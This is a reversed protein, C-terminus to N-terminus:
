EQQCRELFWSGRFSIISWLNPFAHSLCPCVYLNKILHVYPSANVNFVSAGQRAVAAIWKFRAPGLHVGGYWRSVVVICDETDTLDLLAALKSGSGKEGDDDSDSFACGTETDKFKYAIMNHSAQAVKKDTFLLHHLVWNIHDMSTVSAVHALMTESPGSKPPHFPSGRYVKRSNLENDVVAIEFTRLPQGYKASAPIFKRTTSSKGSKSPEIDQRSAPIDDDENGESSNINSNQNSQHSYEELEARVHEAWLIVVEVDKEYLELLEKELDRLRQKDMIWQPAVLNPTPPNCSPYDSPIDNLHLMFEPIIVIQWNKGASDKTLADEGYFAVLADWEEAQRDADEAM